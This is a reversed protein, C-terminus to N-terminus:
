SPWYCRGPSFAWAALKMWRSKYAAIKDLEARMRTLNHEYYDYTHPQVSM